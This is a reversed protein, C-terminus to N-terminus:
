SSRSCTTRSARARRIDDLLRGVEHSGLPLRAPLGARLLRGAIDGVLRPELHAEGLTTMTMPFVSATHDWVRKEIRPPPSPGAVVWVSPGRSHSEYPTPWYALRLLPCTLWIHPIWLSARPASSTSFPNTDIPHSLMGSRRVMPSSRARIFCDRALAYGPAFGPAIGDPPRAGASQRRSRALPVNDDSGVPRVAGDVKTHNLSRVVVVGFQLAVWVAPSHAPQPYADRSPQKRLLHQILNARRDRHELDPLADVDELRKECGVRLFLVAARGFGDGLSSVTAASAVASSGLAARMSCYVRSKMRLASSVLNLWSSNLVERSVKELIIVM